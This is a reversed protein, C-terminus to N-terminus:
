ENAAALSIMEASSSKSMAKIQKACRELCFLIFLFAHLSLSSQSRPYILGHITITNKSIEM